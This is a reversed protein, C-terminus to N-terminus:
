LDVGAAIAELRRIRERLDALEIRAGIAPVGDDHQGVLGRALETRRLDLWGHWAKLATLALITIAALSAIEITYIITPDAGYM